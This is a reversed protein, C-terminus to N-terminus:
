DFFKHVLPMRRGVGFAKASVKLGLPMQYRKYENRALLKLTLDVEKEPHGKELLERKTKFNEIVDELIEDLRDYPPLFDQDTQDEKLEATPPKSFVRDPIRRKRGNAERGLEYVQTKYVDSLPALGGCMDGYLTCYGVALESKNGTTMLLSGHKNSLAMLYLGRIRSQINEETIDPSAGEFHPQLASLAAAKLEEIGIELHKNGIAGATQNADEISEPSTFRSPMMVTTLADAGLADEALCAIVASDIGGSLGLLLSNFGLKKCYDRIGLVLADYTNEYIDDKLRIPSSAVSQELTVLINQEKFAEASEVIEGRDNVLYSRGDFILSDNAGVCNVYVMPKGLQRAIGRLMSRKAEVKKAEFPSASLNIIVDANKASDLPRQKYRNHLAAFENNWIDECVTLCLRKGMFEVISDERGPEFFRDEDFVDYSPLLRKSYTSLVKGQSVFIAVNLVPRGRGPNQKLSGFIFNKDQHEKILKQAYHDSLGIFDDYDLLDQQPYGCISSEPFIVLDADKSERLTNSMKQFNSEFNGVASNMQAMLIKMLVM